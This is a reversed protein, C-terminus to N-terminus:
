SVSLSFSSFFDNLSTTRHRKSCSLPLDWPYTQVFDRWWSVMTHKQSVLVILPGRDGRQTKTNRYYRWESSKSTYWYCECHITLWAVVSWVQLYRQRCRFLTVKYLLLALYYSCRSTISVLHSCSEGDVLSLVLPRISLILTHCPSYSPDYYIAFKSYLQCM